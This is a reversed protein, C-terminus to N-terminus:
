RQYERPDLHFTDEIAIKPAAQGSYSRGIRDGNAPRFERTETRSGLRTYALQKV